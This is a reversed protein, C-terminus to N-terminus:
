VYIKPNEALQGNVETVSQVADSFMGFPGSDAGCVEEDRESFLISARVV